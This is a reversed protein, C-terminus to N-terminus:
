LQDPITEEILLHVRDGLHWESGDHRLWRGALNALREWQAGLHEEVSYIIGAHAVVLVHGDGTASAIADLAAFARERVLEDQEWGPPRRRQELYGPWQAEIQDRTLGQWEGAHREKLGEQLVVPGVGIEGSIIAATSAARMLPSAFVADVAGVAASARAAQQRGLDTLDPDEQGQWLGLANWESQGHRVMLVNTV